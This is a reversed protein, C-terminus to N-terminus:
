HHTTAWLDYVIIEGIKIIKTKIFLLELNSFYSHM